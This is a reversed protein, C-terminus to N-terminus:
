SARMALWRELGRQSFRLTRDSLRKGFPLQDFHDYLWRPEVSLREAVETATLLRDPEGALEQEVTPPSLAMFRKELRVRVSELVGLLEPIDEITIAELQDPDAVLWALRKLRDADSM